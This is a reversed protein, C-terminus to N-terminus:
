FDFLSGKNLDSDTRITSQGRQKDRVTRKPQDGEIMVKMEQKTISAEQDVTEELEEDLILECLLHIAEIHKSMKSHNYQEAKALHLKEQMKHIIVDTAIAMVFVREIEKLESINLYVM